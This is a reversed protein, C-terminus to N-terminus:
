PRLTVASQMDANVEERTFLLPRYRNELWDDQLDDYHESDVDGSVGRLVNVFAQPTGDARFGAVLRYLSGGTAELRARPQGADDFFASSAVNVTGEAGDTPQWGADLAEGWISRIRAGHVDGWTYTRDGFQAALYTSTEELALLVSLSRAEGSFFSSPEPARGTMVNALAKLMYAPSAQLIPEFVISFDDRLVRRALFFAFANFTVPAAAAREMRRDWNRLQEVLVALDDRDRFASLAPDSAVTAWVDVLPPVLDDAFVSYSDDQLNQFDEESVGGREALAALEDEIRASRLSPDFFVGFYWPDTAVTGDATFGLPDNNASAIWGRTEARSHPLEDPGLFSTWFTQEDDGSMLSFPRLTEDPIGRDPVLPSSRYTIDTADAGIFNFLALEMQDVANDFDDVSRARNMALFGQGEHSVRFGTWNLLIRGGRGIPLPILEDPLLVGYGPVEEVDVEISTQGAVRVQERRVRLPVSRGAVQVMGDNVQVEWMDMVDPYTTTATWAIHRNHGLQIGPSGAFSFGAVDLAGDGEASSMHHLWFLSPSSLGQHPDGAILSRGSATHAGRMAWNNSGGSRFASAWRSFDALRARTEPSDVLRLAPMPPGIPDVRDTLPRPEPREDEPIVFADRVPAMLHLRRDLEPLYQDIISTLIEYELQNANAFLLLKGVSLGDSVDWLEPEYDLTEFEPPTPATGDRVEEIRRNVGATWAQILLWQDPTDRFLAAENVQGWHGINFMRVVSDESAYSAGLVEARRGLARRRTLDMQFLRDTAQAYGSAFYADVDNQAYIHAVGMSDRVIDVPATLGEFPPRETTCGPLSPDLRCEGETYGADLGADTATLGVSTCAPLGAALMVTLAVAAAANRAQAKLASLSM